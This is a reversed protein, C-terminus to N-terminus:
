TEEKVIRDIATVATPDADFRNRTVAVAVRFRHGCLCRLRQGAAAAPEAM